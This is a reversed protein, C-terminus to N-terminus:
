EKKRLVVWAVESYTAIYLPQVTILQIGIITDVNVMTKVGSLYFSNLLLFFLPFLILSKLFNTSITFGNQAKSIWLFQLYTIFKTEYNHLNILSDKSKNVSMMQKPLYSIILTIIRRLHVNQEFLKEQLVIKSMIVCWQSNQMRRCHILFIPFVKRIINLKYKM